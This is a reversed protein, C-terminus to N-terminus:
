TSAKRGRRAVERGLTLQYRLHNWSCSTCVEVTFLRVEAFKLLPALNGRPWVRGNDRKPFEDSYVYSVLRLDDRTCIPCGGADEGSYNAARVLDPHADCIERRAVRGVRFARLVANRALAYDVMGQM